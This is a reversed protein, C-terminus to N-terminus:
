SGTQRPRRPTSSTPSPDHSRPRAHPGDGHRSHRRPGTSTEVDLEAAGLASDRPEAFFWEGRVDDLEAILLERSASGPSTLEAAIAVSATGARPVDLAADTEALVSATSPSGGCRAPGRGLSRRHREVVIAALGGDRPQIPRRAAARLRACARLVAAQPARRRRGRGVLHGALLRQAAVRDAGQTHPASRASTSSATRSPARRTSSCRGTGPRWTTRCASTASSAARRAQRERGDGEPPRAHGAVRADASRRQDVRTSPRGPPRGRGASSPSSARGTERYATWDRRNWLEWLHMSGHATTRTRGTQREGDWDAGPTFPSGPTYPVHPALEASSRPSCTTTTAAGWTKGTSVSRGAGTRTAGSNENNGNLLVLSAHHASGCSTRAPRPRSRPACRSRRPTRPARSSSTRGRSSAAARRM